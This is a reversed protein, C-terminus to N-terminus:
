VGTVPPPPAVRGWTFWAATGLLAVCAVCLVRVVAQFAALTELGALQPQLWWLGGGFSVAIVVLWPVIAFRERALLNQVLVNALVLCLISWAFWPVLPAAPLFEEPNRFYVVRLPLTPMVSCVAAVAGGLAATGLLTHRLAADAGTGGAIKPFMVSAIPLTFQSLGFGVIVGAGYLRTLKPDFQSQVFLTDVSSIFMVAGMGLTLPVVRALWPRWHFKGGGARWAERTCWGALVVAVFQSVLSASIGSAAQGHLVAVLLVVMTFRGIGDIILTWGLGAFEQRGQLVGRLVPLWLTTLGLGLTALLANPNSIKFTACIVDSAAWGTLFMVLWLGSMAWLVARLTAALEAQAPPTKAMAAQLAFVPQLGASPIGLLLFLKLLTQFVGYEAAEMKGAIPHVAFMFVGCGLNAAVMWGAQKFFHRGSEASM